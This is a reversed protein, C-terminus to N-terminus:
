KFDEPSVSDLFEKFREVEDEEEDEIEIGAEELVAEAAYIPVTARVALAIADSPRSSVVVSEGDQTLQIEAYFTGERLETILIREVTAELGQLFKQALAIPAAAITAEEFAVGRGAAVLPQRQRM